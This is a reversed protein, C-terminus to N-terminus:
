LVFGTGFLLTFALTSLALRKLYPDLARKDSTHKIKMLDLIFVPMVILYIFQVMGHYHLLTFLVACIWGSLILAVHYNWARESGLRVPITIKGSRKDNEIDRMNNLNLVGTSFFGMTCAPLWISWPIQHANLYFTGAVGLLGFFLFVFLDGLGRYGYANHGVVYKIAAAISAIGLILFLLGETWHDGLGYYILWIGSILSLIVSVLIGWKMEQHTIEGSQVTRLPGLRHENDTGKISDGYDNAFNSLIQLILTTVLSLIIVPIMYNGSGIALFSGMIVSSLALPLTRLRAAKIWSVIKSTKATSM